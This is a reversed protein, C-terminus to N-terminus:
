HSDDDGAALQRLEETSLAAYNNVTQTRNDVSVNVAAGNQILGTHQALVRLAALKDRAKIQVDAVEWEEADEGSGKVRRERKIRVSEILAAQDHTLEASPVLTMSSADADWHVVDSLNGFAIREIETRVREALTPGQTDSDTQCAASMEDAVGDRWLIITPRPISLERAVASVNGDYSALLGLAQARQEDTYTRRAM